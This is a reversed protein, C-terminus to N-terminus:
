RISTPDYGYLALAAGVIVAFLILLWGWTPFKNPAPTPTPVPEPAVNLFDARVWGRPAEIQAWLYKPQQQTGLVAVVDGKALSGVVKTSGPEPHVNLGNPIVTARTAM